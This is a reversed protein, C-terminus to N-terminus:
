IHRIEVKVDGAIVDMERTVVLFEKQFSVANFVFESFYEDL